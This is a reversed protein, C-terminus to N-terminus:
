LMSKMLITRVLIHINNWGEELVIDERIIHDEDDNLQKVLVRLEPEFVKFFHLGVEGLQPIVDQVCRNNKPLDQAV